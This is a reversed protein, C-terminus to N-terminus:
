FLKGICIWIVRHNRAHAIDRPETSIVSSIEFVEIFCRLLLHDRSIFVGLNQGFSGFHTFNTFHHKIFGWNNVCLLLNSLRYCSMNTHNIIILIYIIGSLLFATCPVFSLIPLSTGFCRSNWSQITSVIVLNLFNVILRRKLVFMCALALNRRVRM